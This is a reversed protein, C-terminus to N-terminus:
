VSGLQSEAPVSMCNCLTSFLFGKISFSFLSCHVNHLIERYVGSEGM